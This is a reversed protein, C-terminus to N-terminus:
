KSIVVPIEKYKRDGDEFVEFDAIDNEFEVFDAVVMGNLDWLCIMKGDCSYLYEGTLNLCMKKVPCSHYEMKQLPEGSTSVACISNNQLGCFVRTFLPDTSVCTIYDQMAIEARLQNKIYIKLINLNGIILIDKESFSCQCRYNRILRLNQDYIRLKEMNQVGVLCKHNGDTSNSYIMEETVIRVLKSGKFDESIENFTETSHVAISGDNLVFLFKETILLDTISRKYEIKDATNFPVTTHIEISKDASYIYSQDPTITFRKPIAIIKSTEKLRHDKTTVTQVLVSSKFEKM